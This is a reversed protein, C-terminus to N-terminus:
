ALSIIEFILTGGAPFVIGTDFTVSNRDANVTIEGQSIKIGNGFLMFSTPFTALANGGSSFLAATLATVENQANQTVGTTAPSQAIAATEASSLGTSGGRFTVDGAATPVTLMGDAVSFDDSRVIGSNNPGNEYLDLRANDLTGSMIVSADLNTAGPNRLITWDSNMTVGAATQDTGTYVYTGLPETVPDTTTEYLVDTDANSPAPSVGDAPFYGRAVEVIANNAAGGTPGQQTVGVVEFDTGGSVSGALGSPTLFQIDDGAAFPLLSADAAGDWGGNVRFTTSTLFSSFDFNSDVFATAGPVLTPATVIAVDGEHWEVTSEANRATTSAFTRVDTLNVAPAVLQGNMNMLGAGLNLRDANLQGSTIMAASINPIRAVDFTGANIQSAPLSPIHQENINVIETGTASQLRTVTDTVAGARNTNIRNIQLITAM